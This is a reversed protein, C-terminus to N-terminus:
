ENGAVVITTVLKGNVIQSKMQEPIPNEAMDEAGEVPSVINVGSCGSSYVLTSPELALCADSLYVTGTDTKDIQIIPCAGQIQLQVKSSGVIEVRAVVDTCIVGVNKCNNITIAKCKGTINIIM